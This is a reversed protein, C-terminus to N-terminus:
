KAAKLLRDYDAPESEFALNAVYAEAAADIPELAKAIAEAEGPRLEFRHWVRATRAVLEAPIRSM